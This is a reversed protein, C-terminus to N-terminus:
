GIEVEQLEKPTQEIGEELVTRWFANKSRKKHAYETETLLIPSILGGFAAASELSIESVRVDLNDLDAEDRVVLILDIDSGAAEEGRAASGFLTISILDKGIGEFFRNALDQILREEIKFAPILIRSIM